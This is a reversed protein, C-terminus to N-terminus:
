PGEIGRRTTPLNEIQRELGDREIRSTTWSAQAGRRDADSELMPASRRAVLKQRTEVVQNMVEVSKTRQPPWTPSSGVRGAGEHRARAEVIKESDKLDRQIEGM